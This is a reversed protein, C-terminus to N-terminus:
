PMDDIAHKLTLWIAAIALHIATLFIVLSKDYRTAIARFQELKGFLNEILRRALYLHKDYLLNIGTGIALIFAAWSRAAQVAQCALYKSCKHSM